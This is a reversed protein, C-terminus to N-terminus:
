PAVPRVVRDVADLVVVVGELQGGDPRGHVEVQRDQGDAPAELQQVHGLAAREVLVDGVALRRHLVAAVEVLHLQLAADRMATAMPVVPGTPHDCCWWATSRARGDTEGDGAPGGVADDLRHLEPAAPDHRHLPVGLVGGVLVRDLLPQEVREDGLAPTSADASVEDLAQSLTNWALTACKIRVPFKVVGRLAELDGLKM